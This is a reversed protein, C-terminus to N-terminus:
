QSTPDEPENKQCRSNKKVELKKQGVEKSIKQAKDELEKASNKM